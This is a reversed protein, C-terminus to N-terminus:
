VEIVNGIRLSPKHTVLIFQVQMDKALQQLLTALRKSKDPDVFRFPEDLVILRRRKPRALVLCALRLAFAAVDVVGGGAASLPDVTKGNREFTLRAETKGRKRAFVIRFEYPDDFITSLCRSVVDAIAKHTQQQITQALQQVIQQAHETDTVEDEARILRRREERFQDNARHYDTMLQNVKNRTDMERRLPTDVIQANGNRQGIKEEVTILIPLVITISEFVIQNVIMQPMLGVNSVVILVSEM